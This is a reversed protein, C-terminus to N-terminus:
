TESAPLRVELAGHSSGTLALRGSVLAEADEGFIDRRWGSLAPVDTLKGMAIHELDERKAIMPSAV